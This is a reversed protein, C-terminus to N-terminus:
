SPVEEIDAALADRVSLWEHRGEGGGLRIAERLAEELVTVRGHLEDRTFRRNSQDGEHGHRSCHAAGHEACDGCGIQKVWYSM